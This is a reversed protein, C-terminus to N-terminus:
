PKGIWAWGLLIPLGTKSNPILALLVPSPEKIEDMEIKPAPYTLFGFLGASSFAAM